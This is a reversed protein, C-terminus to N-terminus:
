LIKNLSFFNLPPPLTSQVKILNNVEPLSDAKAQSTYSPKSQPQQQKKKQLRM